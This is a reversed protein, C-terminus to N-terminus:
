DYLDKEEPVVIASSLDILTLAAEFTAQEERSRPRINFLTFGTSNTRRETNTVMSPGSQGSTNTSARQSSDRPVVLPGPITEHPLPARAVGPPYVVRARDIIPDYMTSLSPNGPETNGDSTKKVKDNQLAKKELNKRIKEDKNEQALKKKEEKVKQIEEQKLKNKETKEDIKKQKKEDREYWRDKPKRKKPSKKSSDEETNGGPGKGPNGGPGEGPNGGSNGGPNGGPEKDSDGGPNGRMMKTIYYSIIKILNLITNLNYLIIFIIFMICIINTAIYVRPYYLWLNYKYSFYMFSLCIIVGFLFFYGLNVSALEIYIERICCNFCALVYNFDMIYIICLLKFFHEKYTFLFTGLYKYLGVLYAYFYKRYQYYISFKKIYKVNYEVLIQILFLLGLLTNFFILVLVGLLLNIYFPIIM